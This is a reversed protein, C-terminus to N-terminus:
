RVTAVASVRSHLHESMQRRDDGGNENRRHPYRQGHEQEVAGPNLALRRRQQGRDASSGPPHDRIERGGNVVAGRLWDTLDGRGSPEGSRRGLVEDQSWLSCRGARVPYVVPCLNSDRPARGSSSRLRSRRDRGGRRDHRGPREGTRRLSRALRVAVAVATPQLRGGSRLCPPRVSVSLRETVRALVVVSAWASVRLLRRGRWQRRESRRRLHM